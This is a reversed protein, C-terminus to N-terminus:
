SLNILGHQVSPKQNNGYYEDMEGQERINNIEYRRREDEMHACYSYIVYLVRLVASSDGAVIEELKAPPEVMGAAQILEFALKVNSTCLEETTPTPHYAHFAVFYGDILGMLYFLYSVM